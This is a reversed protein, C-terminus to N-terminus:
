VLFFDCDCVKELNPRGPTLKLGFDKNREDLIEKLLNKSTLDNIKKQNRIKISQQVKASTMYLHIQIFPRDPMQSQQLEIEGLLELFWEFEAFSRNVWVFDVKKLSKQEIKDYWHNNCKQCTKLCSMYQFWLSQLISAFPTM